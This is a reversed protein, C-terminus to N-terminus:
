TLALKLNRASLGLRIQMEAGDPVRWVIKNLNVHQKVHGFLGEIQSRARQRKRRLLTEKKYNEGPEKPPRGTPKFAHNINNEHLWKRNSLTAYLQDAIVVEPVMGFRAKHKAVSRTLRIGEHFPNFDFDDLFAYGDVLSVHAKPGFEVSKGEKGRIMPRIRPQHFSVIRNAVRRGRTTAMELQQAYIEKAIVLDAQIKVLVRKSIYKSITVAQDQYNMLVTELQGINRKLFRLMKNRSSRIFAKKKRKTKQYNLYLRRATKRYTRVRKKPNIINKLHLTKACVWERVTNLLKVDNPYTINAPFVTADLMLKQGRILGKANLLGLVENEFKKMYPAGLRKRRKSLLSHHIIGKDLKVVFTDHGCFYQFYPNEHFYELINRDSMELLMQGLLLGLILRNKKLTSHKSPDFYRLYLGEMENWPVLKALKIWRNSRDIQGCYPNLNKFIPLQEPYM